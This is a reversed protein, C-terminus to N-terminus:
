AGYKYEVAAKIGPYRDYQHVIVHPQGNSTHIIGDTIMPAPEILNNAYANNASTGLQAAWGSESAALRSSDYWPKTSMILNYAAQDPGGGGPVHQPAANSMLFIQGFLDSAYEISGAIVGANLITSGRVNEWYSPYCNLFNNKGWVEDEYRISESSCIIKPNYVSKNLWETVNGQFVVDRVDTAVVRTVDKCFESELILRYFHFRDVCINGIQQDYVFVHIGEQQLRTRTDEPINHCILIKKGVFGSRILSNVWCAVEKFTYNSIAGIVLDTM